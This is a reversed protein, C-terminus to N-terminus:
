QGRCHLRQHSDDDDYTTQLAAPPRAPRDGPAHATPRGFSCPRGTRNRKTLAVGQKFCAVHDMYVYFLFM